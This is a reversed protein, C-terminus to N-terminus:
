FTKLSPEDNEICSDETSTQDVTKTKSKFEIEDLGETIIWTSQIRPINEEDPQIVYWYYEGSREILLNVGNESFSAELLKDGRRLVKIKAIM